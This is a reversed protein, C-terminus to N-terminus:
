KLSYKCKESATGSGSYGFESNWFHCFRCKLVELDESISEVCLRLSLFIMVNECQSAAGRELANEELMAMWLSWLGVMLWRGVSWQLLNHRWIIFRKQWVYLHLRVIITVLQSFKRQHTGEKLCLCEKSQFDEKWVLRNSSFDKSFFHHFQFWNSRKQKLSLLNEKDSTDSLHDALRAFIHHSRGIKNAHFVDDVIPSPLIEQAQYIKEKWSHSPLIKQNCLDAASSIKPGFFSFHTTIETFAQAYQIFGNFKSANHIECDIVKIHLGSYNWEIIAAICTVSLLTLKCSTNFSWKHDDILNVKAYELNNGSIFKLLFAYIVDKWFWNSYMNVVSRVFPSALIQQCTATIDENISPMMTTRNDPNDAILFSRNTPWHNGEMWRRWWLTIGPKGQGFSTIEKRFQSGQWVSTNFHYPLSCYPFNRLGEVYNSKVLFTFLDIM